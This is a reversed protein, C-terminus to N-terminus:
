LSKGCHELLLILEHQDNDEMGMALCYSEVSVCRLSKSKDTQHKLLAKNYVSKTDPVKYSRSFQTPNDTLVKKINDRADELSLMLQRETYVEEVEDFTM